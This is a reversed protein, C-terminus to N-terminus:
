YAPELWGCRNAILSTGTKEYLHLKQVPSGNSAVSKAMNFVGNNSNAGGLLGPEYAFITQNGNFDWYLEEFAALSGSGDAADYDNLDLAIATNARITGTVGPIASGQVYSAVDNLVPDLIIDAVVGGYNYERVNLGKVKMGGFTNTNGGYQIYPATFSQVRKWMQRGVLLTLKQDGGMQVQLDATDTLWNEWQAQTLVSTYGVYNGGRYQDMVTKRIGNVYNVQGELGSNFSGGGPGWYWRNIKSMSFRKWMYTEQGNAWFQSNKWQTYTAFFDTDKLPLFDRTTSVYDTVFFPTEFLPHSAESDWFGSVDYADLAYSNVPFHLSTNWGGASVIAPSPELTITGPGSAIVRGTNASPTSDIVARKLRFLNYSSDVFLVVLNGASDVTPTAAVEAIVRSTGMIPKQIVGGYGNVPRSKKGKVYMLMEIANYGNSVDWTFPIKDPSNIANLVVNNELGDVSLQNPTPQTSSSM